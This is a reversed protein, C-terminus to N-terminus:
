QRIVHEECVARIAPADMQVFNEEDKRLMGIVPREFITKIDEANAFYIEVM